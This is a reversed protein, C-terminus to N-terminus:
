IPVALIAVTPESCLEVHIKQAGGFIFHSAIDSLGSAQRGSGRNAADFVIPGERLRRCALPKDFM